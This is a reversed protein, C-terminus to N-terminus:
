GLRGMGGNRRPQLRRLREEEAALLKTLLTRDVGDEHLLLAAFRLINQQCVWEAIPSVSEHPREDLPSM